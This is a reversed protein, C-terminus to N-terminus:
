ADRIFRGFLPAASHQQPLLLTQDAAGAPLAYVPVPGAFGKIALPALAQLVGDGVLERTRADVLIEGDGAEECLRSALNVAPGVAVYELRTSSSGIVGVTVYGSAVGLGIGLQHSGSGWRATVEECAQRVRRALALGVAAHQTVPLPAGVLILIGDGAYDKITAGYDAVIGGVVDYYDSLAQIVRSSPHAQAYGTFGRLDSVVVTIELHNQEMAGRLGRERVLTAVQSSLFRSMFQGRQGQLVHYQVAGILFVMEGTAISISAYDMRLVFGAVLFPTAVGMALVRMREPRDPRRNLLLLGSLIGTCCGFLVPLAFLWFGPRLLAQPHSAAFLFDRARLEPFLISFLSYLLAAAQGLRLMRDGTKTDLDRAPVTARVRLLWELGFLLAASEPLALWGPLVVASDAYQYLFGSNGLIALALWALTLSLARSTRSAWDAYSFAIAMGMAVLAILIQPIISTM